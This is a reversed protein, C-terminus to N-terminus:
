RLTLSEVAPDHVRLFIQAGRSSGDAAPVLSTFRIPYEGTKTPRVCIDSKRRDLRLAAKHDQRVSISLPADQVIARDAGSATIRVSSMCFREGTALETIAPEAEIHAVTVQRLSFSMLDKASYLQRGARTPRNESATVVEGTVVWVIQFMPDQALAQPSAIVLWPALWAIAVVASSVRKSLESVNAVTGRM